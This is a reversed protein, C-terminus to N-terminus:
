AKALEVNIEDVKKNVGDVVSVLDEIEQRSPLHLTSPLAHIGVHIKKEVTKKMPMSDLKKRSLDMVDETVRKADSRIGDYVKRSERSITDVSDRVQKKATEVKKQVTEMRSERARSFTERSDDILDDIRKIPDARLESLFAKGSEMQKELYRSKIERVREEMGGRAKQLTQAVYFRSAAQESKKATEAAM